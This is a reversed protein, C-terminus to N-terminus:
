TSTVGEMHCENKVWKTIDFLKIRTGSIMDNHHWMVRGVKDYEVHSHAGSPDWGKVFNFKKTMNFVQFILRSGLCHGDLGVM